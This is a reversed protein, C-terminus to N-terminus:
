PVALNLAGIPKDEVQCLGGLRNDQFQEDSILNNTCSANNILFGYGGCNTVVPSQFSNGTCETGPVLKWGENTARDSQAMFVGHTRSRDINLGQFVNDRSDRMFIGLDNGTLTADAILNHQFSLDLSIGAALNDHLRLDTFRSEETLYCALGDFENDFAIFDRVDLRRAQAAVLGGSRCHCCVIHEVAADTVNWLDIGNNNLQSGDSAATWFEVQQHKRNGDIQLDAIRLHATAHSASQTPSGLIVVPCNAQDALFLITAPGSGRLTLHDHRLIIPQHIEFTGPPLVIEGGAPLRDLAEQIAEGSSNTPLNLVPLNSALVPPAFFCILLTALSGALGPTAPFPNRYKRCNTM